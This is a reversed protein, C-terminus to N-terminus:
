PQLNDALKVLLTNLRKIEYEVLTANKEIEIAESLAPFTTAGYGTWKGPAVVLNRYWERDKIGEPDIFGREFSSLKKNIAVVAQAAKMVRRVRKPLKHKGFGDKGTLSSPTSDSAALGFRPAPVVEHHRHEHHTHAGFIKRIWRAPMTWRSHACHREKEGHKELDKIARELRKVAKVKFHDLEQSADQVSHVAKELGSFSADISFKAASLKVTELYNGLELAYQTTNLPLLPPQLLRLTVLGLHKAVAVHKVFGPDSYLEQFRQSDYVSHYHYVPDTFTGGFGEDSSAIGIRQLFVTYDSGSGLPRINLNDPKAFEEMLLQEAFHDAGIEELSRGSLHPAKPGTYTGSDQRADWLTRNADTPHPLDIAAQRLLHGLSPSGGLSFRSGKTAVDVNLYAVVHDRLFDHFDEGFETSGILGPEEADWSAIVLTRLPKWGKKLLTGLGKVIEVIATTGSVPDAAGLVWADRHCGIVVVEEKVHGPVVAMTNWIPTVKVDVDNKLRIARTSPTGDLTFDFNPIEALLKQANNWSIPLSPISPINLSDERTANPYSPYGPTSPDGPYKSLFQVSGRQVSSPNRAPGAPYPAYGNAVTVSGDDRPDSYIVCGIAGAEQAGKVKLGRFLGGYRAIAITGKLNVGRLALADFDEKRGYNVYVLKGTVDGAKSLGHWAGITKAFRGAPDAIDGVEEVDANWAVNGDDGIIQLERELPTNLIPYYTDIWARPATANVIGLTSTQSEVSGADFLPLKSGQHIGLEDQFIKLISKAQEFDAPSGGLHPVNSFDRSTKLASEPSPVSLFLKEAEAVSLRGTRFESGSAWLGAGDSTASSTDSFAALINGGFTGWIGLFTFAGTLIVAQRVSKVRARFAAEKRHEADDYLPLDQRNWKESGKGDM